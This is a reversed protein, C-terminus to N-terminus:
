GCIDLELNMIRQVSVQVLLERLPMWAKLRLHAADSTGRTRLSGAEQVLFSNTEKARWVASLSQAIREGRIMYVLTIFGRKYDYILEIPKTGRSFVLIGLSIWKL